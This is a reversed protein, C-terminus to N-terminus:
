GGRSYLIYATRYSIPRYFTLGRVYHPTIIDPNGWIVHVCNRDKGAHYTIRIQAQGDREPKCYVPWWMDCPHMSYWGTGEIHPCNIPAGWITHSWVIWAWGYAKPICHTPECSHWPCPWFLFVSAKLTMPMSIIQDWEGGWSISYIPQHMDCLIHSTPKGMYWLCRATDVWITDTM